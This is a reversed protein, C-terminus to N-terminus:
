KITWDGGIIKKELFILLNKLALIMCGGEGMSDLM